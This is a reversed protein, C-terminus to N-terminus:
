REYVCVLEAVALAHAKAAREIERCHAHAPVDLHEVDLAYLTFHYHHRGHGHPPCPGGYGARRFDNTGQRLATKEDPRCHEALRGVTPAIDYAAWHYWVGSPADPDRCVIALSRTGPPAGSWALPPSLDDGDCTFRAPIEAGSTFATSALRMTM